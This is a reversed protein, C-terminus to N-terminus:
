LEGNLSLELGTHVSCPGSLNFTKTLLRKFKQKFQPWFLSFSFNLLGGKMKTIIEMINM